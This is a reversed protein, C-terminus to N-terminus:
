NSSTNEADNTGDTGDEVNFFDYFLKMLDENKVTLVRMTKGMVKKREYVFKYDAFLEGLATMSDVNIGEDRLIQLVKSTFLVEDNKKIMFDVAHSELVSELIALPNTMNTYDGNEYVVEIKKNFAEIIKRWIVAVIDLRPDVEEADIYQM